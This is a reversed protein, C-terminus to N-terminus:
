WDRLADTIKEYQEYYWAFIKSWVMELIPEIEVTTDHLTTTKNVTIKQISESAPNANTQASNHRLTTFMACGTQNM